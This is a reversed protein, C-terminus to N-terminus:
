SEEVGGGWDKLLNLLGHPPFRWQNRLTGSVRNAWPRRVTEGGIQPRRSGRGASRRRTGVVASDWGGGPRQGAFVKQTRTVELYAQKQPSTALTDRSGLPLGRGVPCSCQKAMSPAPEIKKVWALSRGSKCCASNRIIGSVVCFRHSKWQTVTNHIFISYSM